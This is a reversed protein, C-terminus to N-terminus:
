GAFYHNGVQFMPTGYAGYGGATFYLVDTNLPLCAEERVLRCIDESVYCRDIRGNWMVSFQNPQYVVGYVTNPFQESKVRNLITDIVLRKGEESEGEAEGMTVLAILEVEEETLEMWDRVVYVVQSTTEPETTTEKRKVTPPLIYTTSEAATTTIIDDSNKVCTVVISTFIISLVLVLVMVITILVKQYGYLNKNSM